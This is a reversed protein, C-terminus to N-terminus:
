SGDDSTAKPHNGFMLEPEDDVDDSSRSGSSGRRSADARARARQREAAAEQPSMEQRRGGRSSSGQSGGDSRSSTARSTGSSESSSVFRGDDARPPLAGDSGSRGDGSGSRGDSSGSRGDSSGGGRGSSREDRPMTLQDLSERHAKAREAREAAEPETVDALTTTARRGADGLKTGTEKVAAGSREAAGKVAAGAAGAVATAREFIGPGRPEPPTAPASRPAAEVPGRPPQPRADVLPVETQPRATASAMTPHPDVAPAGTNAAARPPGTQQRGRGHDTRLEPSVEVGGASRVQGSHDLMSVEIGGTLDAILNYLFALFVMVGTAVVVSLGALMLGTRMIQVGDVACSEFGLLGQAQECVREVLMLRRVVSWVVVGTVVLIAAGAINVVLGLKLVSWPDVRKVTMRRRIM